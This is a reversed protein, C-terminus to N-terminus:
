ENNGIFRSNAGNVLHHEIKELSTFIGDAISYKPDTVDEPIVYTTIAAAKGSIMGTISDEVIVCQEKNTKLQKAASLYVCPHPKGYKESDASCIVTFFDRIALHDLVADIIPISSSTALGIKFNNKRLYNLLSYLGTKANGKERILAIVSNMINQQLELSTIPLEFRKCWIDALDDLKRGMTNNICDDVTVIVNYKKLEEIQAQRWFPESDILGGDMDFIVTNINM